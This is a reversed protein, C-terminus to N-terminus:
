DLSFRSGGGGREGNNSIITSNNVYYSETLFDECVCNKAQYLNNEYVVWGIQIFRENETM